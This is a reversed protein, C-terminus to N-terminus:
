RQRWWVAIGVLAMLAPILVISLFFTGKMQRNTLNVRPEDYTRPAIGMLNKQAALYNVANLFLKGNGMIHFFSNTAFDSDGVVVLRSRTKIKSNPDPEGAKVKEGRLERMVAESSSIFEPKREAFALLTVPGARDRGEVFEAKEPNTGAYSQKSTNVLPRVASGAVRQETPSLSRAGPFFTLPLDRTIEHRNYDTVAPASVDTWFHSAPDIVITEDAVIGFERVIPELGTKIWPDLMFMANGGNQLYEDIATVEPPLLGTRPGAVVLVNCKALQNDGQSLSIKQVLYNMTELGHRAKAMGHREHLVLKAGLGHSHGGGGEMHDHSELSFPDPEGHGDLFCVIQQAGQAIRLIGNAIDTEGPGNVTLKRGESEMIATGAFEVGKMRAQAPNLMPDYFEVSIKDTQKAFQEYLEVTERMMPDHFFTIHVPKDLRKLMEITPQSLSYLRAQTMDVRVPFRASLYGLAVLVGIAGVTYLAIEGRRQRLLSSLEGRLAYLGWVTLLAGLVALVISWHTAELLITHISGAAALLGIGALLILINRFSSEM